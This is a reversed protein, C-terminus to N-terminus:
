GVSEHCPFVLIVLNWGQVLLKTLRFQHHSFLQLIPKINLKNSNKRSTEQNRNAHQDNLM